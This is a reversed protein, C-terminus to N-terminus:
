TTTTCFVSGHSRPVMGGERQLDLRRGDPTVRVYVVFYFASAAHVSCRALSPWWMGGNGGAPWPGLGFPMTVAHMGPTTDPGYALTLSYLIGLTGGLGPRSAKGADRSRCRGQCQATLGSLVLWSELGLNGGVKPERGDKHQGEVPCHRGRSSSRVGRSRQMRKRRRPSPPSADTRRDRGQGKGAQLPYAKVVSNTPIGKHSLRKLLGRREEGRKEEGRREEGRKEEGRREERREEGRRGEGRREEGRKEEGRREEKRKEEGRERRKEERRKEEGGRREEGRREERRKEERRRREEGRREERREERRREEGRKEERRKEERRKEVGGRREEGRREEGRRGLPPADSRIVTWQDGGEAGGVMTELAQRHM